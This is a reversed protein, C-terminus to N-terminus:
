CLTVQRTWSQASDVDTGCVSFPRCFRRKFLIPYFLYWSHTLSFERESVCTWARFLMRLERKSVAFPTGFISVGCALPGDPAYDKTLVSVVAKGTTWNSSSSLRSCGRKRGRAMPRAEGLKHGHETVNALGPSSVESAGTDQGKVKLGTEYRAGVKGAALTVASHEAAQVWQTYASEPLPNTVVVRKVLTILEQVCSHDSDTPGECWCGDSDVVLMFMGTRHRCLFSATM